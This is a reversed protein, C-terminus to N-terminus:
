RSSHVLFIFRFCNCLNATAGIISHVSRFVANVTEEDGSGNLLFDLNTQLADLLEGCEEFYTKRFQTLPDGEGESNISM